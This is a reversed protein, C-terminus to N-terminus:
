AAYKVLWAAFNLLHFKICEVLWPANKTWCASYKVHLPKKHARGVPKTPRKNGVYVALLFGGAAIWDSVTSHIRAKVKVSTGASSLSSTILIRSLSCIVSNGKSLDWQIVGSCTGVVATGGPLLPACSKQAETQNAPKEM